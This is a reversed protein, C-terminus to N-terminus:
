RAIRPTFSTPLATLCGATFDAGRGIRSYGVRYPSLFGSLRPNGRFRVQLETAILCLEATNRHPTLRVGRAEGRMLRLNSDPCFVVSPQRGHYDGASADRSPGPWGFSSSFVPCNANQNSTRTAGPEDYWDSGSVAPSGASSGPWDMCSSEARRAARRINRMSAASSRIAVRQSLNVGILRGSWYVPVDTASVISCAAKCV